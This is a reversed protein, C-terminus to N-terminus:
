DSRAFEMLFGSSESKVVAQFVMRCAEVNLNQM